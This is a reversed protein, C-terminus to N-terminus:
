ADHGMEEDVERDKGFQSSKGLRAANVYSDPQNMDIVEQMIKYQTFAEEILPTVEDNAQEGDSYKLRIEVEEIYALVKRIEALDKGLRQPLGRGKMLAHIGAVVTNVAGLVTIAVMHEGALPGLATITAGVILQVIALFNFGITFLQNHSTKQRKQNRLRKCLAGTAAHFTDYRNSTSKDPHESSEPM